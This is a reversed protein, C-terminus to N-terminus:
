CRRGRVDPAARYGDDSGGVIHCITVVAHCTTMGCTSKGPLPMCALEPPLPHMRQSCLQPLAETSWARHQGRLLIQQGPLGTRTWSSRDTAGQPNPGSRLGALGGVLLLEAITV